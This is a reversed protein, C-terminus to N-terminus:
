CSPLTLQESCRRWLQGRSLSALRLAPQRARVKSRCWSGAISQLHSSACAQAPLSASSTQPQCASIDAPYRSTGACGGFRLIPSVPIHVTWCVGGTIQLRTLSGLASLQTLDDDDFISIAPVCSLWLERLRPLQSIAGVANCMMHGSTFTLSTLQTLAVLHVADGNLM